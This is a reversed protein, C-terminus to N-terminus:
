WRRDVFMRRCTVVRKLEEILVDLLEIGAEINKPQLSFLFM